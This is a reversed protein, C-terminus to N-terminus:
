CQENVGEATFPGVLDRSTAPNYVNKVTHVALWYEM